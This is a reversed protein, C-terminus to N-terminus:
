CYNTKNKKKREFAFKCLNLLCVYKFPVGSEYFPGVLLRLM